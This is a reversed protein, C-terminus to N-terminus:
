VGAHLHVHRAPRVAPGTNIIRGSHHRCASSADVLVVYMRPVLDIRGQEMLSLRLLAPRALLPAHGPQTAAASHLRAAAHSVSECFPGACAANPCQM